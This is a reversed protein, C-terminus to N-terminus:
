FRIRALLQKIQDKTTQDINTSPKLAERYFHTLIKSTIDKDLEKSRLFYQSAVDQEGLITYLVCLSCCAQADQPQVAYVYELSEKADEFRNLAILTYGMLLWIEPRQSQIQASKACSALAEDYEGMMYHVKAKLYWVIADKPDLSSLDSATLLAQENQNNSLYQQTKVILNEEIADTM